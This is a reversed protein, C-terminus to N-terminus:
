WWRRVQRVLAAARWWCGARALGGSNWCRIGQGQGGRGPWGDTMAPHGDSVTAVPRRYGLRGVAYGREGVPEHMTPLAVSLIANGLHVMSLEPGRDRVAAVSTIMCMSGRVSPFLTPDGACSSGTNAPAARQAVPCRRTPSSDRTGRRPRAAIRGSSSNAARDRYRDYSGRYFSELIRWRM